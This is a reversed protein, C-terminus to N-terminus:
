FFYLIIKGLQVQEVKKGDENPINANCLIYIVIFFLIGNDFLIVKKTRNIRSLVPVTKPCDGVSMGCSSAKFATNAALFFASCISAYVYRDFLGFRRAIKVDIRAIQPLKGLGPTNNIINFKGIVSENGKWPSNGYFVFSSFDNTGYPNAATSYLLIM